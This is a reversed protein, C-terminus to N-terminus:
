AEPREGIPLLSGEHIAGHTAASESAGGKRHPKLLELLYRLHYRTGMAQLIAQIAEQCRKKRSILARYDVEELYVEFVVAHSGILERVRVREPFLALEQLISLLLAGHRQIILQQSSNM